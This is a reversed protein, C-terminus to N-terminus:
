PLWAPLVEPREERCVAMADEVTSGNNLRAKRPTRPPPSPDRCGRTCGPADRALPRLRWQGEGGPSARPFVALTPASSRGSSFRRGSRRATGLIWEKPRSREGALLRGSRGGTGPLSRWAAQPVGATRGVSIATAYARPRWARSRGAEHDLTRGPFRAPGGADHHSPAAPRRGERYPRTPAIPDANDVAVAEHADDRNCVGLAGSRGLFQTGGSRSARGCCITRLRRGPPLRRARAACPGCRQYNCYAHLVPSRAPRSIHFIRSKCAM